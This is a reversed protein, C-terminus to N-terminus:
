FFLSKVHKDNLGVQWRESGLCLESFTMTNDDALSEDNNNNNNNNNNNKDNLPMKHAMTNLVESSAQLIDFEGHATQEDL